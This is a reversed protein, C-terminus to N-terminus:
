VFRVLRKTSLDLTGYTHISRWMYSHKQQGVEELQSIKMKYRERQALVLELISPPPSSSFCPAADRGGGEEEDRREEQGTKRTTGITADRPTANVRYAEESLRARDEQGEAERKTEEKVKRLVSIVEEEHRRREEEFDRQHRREREECEKEQELVRCQLRHVEQELFALSSSSGEEGEQEGGGGGATTQRTTYSSLLRSSSIDPPHRHLSREKANEFVEESATLHATHDGNRALCAERLRSVERRLTEYEEKFLLCCLCSFVIMGLSLPASCCAFRRGLLM